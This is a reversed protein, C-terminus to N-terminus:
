SVSPKISLVPVQSHNLVQQVFPGNNIDPMLQIEPLFVESPQLHAFRDFVHLLRIDAKHRIAVTIGVNLANESSESFDTPILISKIQIEM